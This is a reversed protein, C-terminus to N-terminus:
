MTMPLSFGMGATLLGCFLLSKTGQSSRASEVAWVALMAVSLMYFLMSLTKVDM